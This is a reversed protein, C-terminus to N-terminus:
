HRPPTILREQERWFDPELSALDSGLIDICQRDFNGPRSAFYLQVFKGAGFRRILYATFAGGIPYVTGADHHYWRPGTLEDIWSPIAGHNAAALEALRMFHDPDVLTARYDDREQASMDALSRAFRTIVDRQQLARAALVHPSNSQSEAWGETLLTPPDSDPMASQGITAHALEHLDVYGPPSQSSGFALGLFSFHRDDYFSSRIYYIKARLHLGTLQEMRTVHRDMEAADSQPDKVRDDYFMVLHPTEIRHPSLCKANAEAVSAAALVILHMPLNKHYDRRRNLKYAYGGWVACLIAPAIATAIWAFLKFRSSARRWRFIGLCAAVLPTFLTLTALLVFLIGAPHLIRLIHQILLLLFM